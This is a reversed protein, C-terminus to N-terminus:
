VTYTAVLKKEPAIKKNPGPVQRWPSKNFSGGRFAPAGIAIHLLAYKADRGTIGRGNKLVQRRPQTRPVSKVREVGGGVSGV